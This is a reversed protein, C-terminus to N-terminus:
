RLFEKKTSEIIVRRDERLIEMTKLWGSDSYKGIAKLESTISYTVENWNEYREIFDFIDRVPANSEEYRWGYFGYNIGNDKRVIPHEVRKGWFSQTTLVGHAEGRESFRMGSTSRLGIIKM